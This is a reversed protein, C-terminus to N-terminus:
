GTPVPRTVIPASLSWRNKPITPDAITHDVVDDQANKRLNENFYSSAIKFDSNRDIMTRFEGIGGIRADTEVDFTLSDRRQEEFDGLFVASSSSVRRQDISRLEPFASGSQRESRLPFIGYPIYLVPTDLVYFYGNKITGTGDLTLDMQESYFKWSPAGPIACVPPLFATM